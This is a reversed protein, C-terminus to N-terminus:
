LRYVIFRGTTPFSSPAKGDTITFAGSRIDRVTPVGVGARFVYSGLTGSIEGATTGKTVESIPWATWANTNLNIEGFYFEVITGGSLGVLVCDQVGDDLSQPMTLFVFDGPNLIPSQSPEDTNVWWKWTGQLATIFAMGPLSRPDVQRLTYTPPSNPPFSPPLQCWGEISGPKPTEPVLVEFPTPAQSPVEALGIADGSFFVTSAPIGSTMLPPNAINSIDFALYDALHAVMRTEDPNYNLEEFLTRDFDIGGFGNETVIADNIFVALSTTRGPFTAARLDFNENIIPNNAGLSYTVGNLIVTTFELNFQDFNRRNLNVAFGGMPANVSIAQSTYLDLGLVREPNLLTRVVNRPDGSPFTNDEFTVQRMKAQANTTGRGQGTNYTIEFFGPKPQAGNMFLATNVSAEVQGGGGGGGGGGNGGGGCGSLVVAALALGFFGWTKLAM